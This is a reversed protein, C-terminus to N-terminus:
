NPNWPCPNMWPLWYGEYCFFKPMFGYTPFYYYSYFELIPSQIKHYNKFIQVEAQACIKKTQFAVVTDEPALITTDCDSKLYYQIPREHSIASDTETWSCEIWLPIFTHTPHICKGAIDRQDWTLRNGTYFTISDGPPIALPRDSVTDAYMLQGRWTENSDAPWLKIKIVIWKKGELGEDFDNHVTVIFPVRWQSLYDYEEFSMKRPPLKYRNDWNNEQAFNLRGDKTALVAKLVEIREPGEPIKESCSLGLCLLVGLSLWFTEIKKNM